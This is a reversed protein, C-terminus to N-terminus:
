YFYNVALNEYDYAFHKTIEPNSLLNEICKIVPRYHIFYELNNHVLILQKYYLQSLRMKDMYNRGAKINKPLPSISVNSHKNFFKIIANGAKNNLNHKTVLTMLDAYAENPFEKNEIESEEEIESKEEIESEEIESEEEIEFEEIESEEEIEFEEEINELMEESDPIISPQSILSIDGDYDEEFNFLDEQIVSPNLPLSEQFEEIYNFDDSDLLMDNVDSTIESFEKISEETSSDFTNRCINLHQSLGSPISFYRECFTCKLNRSM